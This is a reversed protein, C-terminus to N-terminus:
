PRSPGPGPAAADGSALDVVVPGHDSLGVWDGVPPIRVAVDRFLAPSYFCYDIHFLNTEGRRFAHTHRTEAGQNEGSVVHYASVLGLSGLLGVNQSHTVKRRHLPDWLSNANFDGAVIAGRRLQDAYERIAAATHQCYTGHVDRQAWVALLQLSVPGTVQIPLMLKHAPNYSAPRSLAFAPRSLVLLGKAAMDGIWDHNPYAALLEAPQRDPAEAEAVIM